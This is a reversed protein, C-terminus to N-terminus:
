IRQHPYLPVKRPTNLQLYRHMSTLKIRVEILGGSCTTKNTPTVQRNAMAIPVGSFASAAGVLLVIPLMRARIAAKMDQWLYLLV